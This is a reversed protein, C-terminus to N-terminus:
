SIPYRFVSQRFLNEIIFNKGNLFHTHLYDCVSLNALIYRKFSYFLIKIRNKNTYTCPYGCAHAACALIRFANDTTNVKQSFNYSILLYLKSFFNSYHASSISSHIGASCRYPKSRFFNIIDVSSSLIFHRCIHYFNFFRFFFANYELVQCIRKLHYFILGTM